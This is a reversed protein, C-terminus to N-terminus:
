VILETITRTNHMDSIKPSSGTFILAISDRRGAYEIGKEVLQRIVEPSNDDNADRLLIAASDTYSWSPADSEGSWCENVEYCSQLTAMDHDSIAKGVRRISVPAVRKARNILSALSDVSTLTEVAVVIGKLKDSFVRLYPEIEQWSASEEIEIYFWFEKGTDEISESWDDLSFKLLYSAPVLVTQFDNSYFSFRWDEPLDDPYFEGGWQEFDWGRAGVRIEPKANKMMSPKFLTLAFPEPIITARPTQNRLDRSTVM